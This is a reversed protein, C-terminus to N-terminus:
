FRGAAIRSCSCAADSPAVSAPSANLSAYMRTSASRALLTSALTLPVVATVHRMLSCRMHIALEPSERATTARLTSSLGPASLAMSRVISWLGSEGSSIFRMRCIPPWTVGAPALPEGERTHCLRRPRAIAREM